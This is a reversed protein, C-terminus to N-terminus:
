GHRLAPCCPALCGLALEDPIGAVDRGPDGGVAPVAVRDLGAAVPQHDAPGARPGAPGDDHAPQEPQLVDQRHADAARGVVLAAPGEVEVRAAAVRHEADFPQLLRVEGPEGAVVAADGHGRDDVHGGALDDGVVEGLDGQVHGGLPPGVVPGARGVQVGRVAARLDVLHGAHDERVHVVADVPAPEGAGLLGVVLAYSRRNALRSQSDARSASWRYRTPSVIVSASTRSNM